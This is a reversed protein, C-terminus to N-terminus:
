KTKESKLFVIQNISMVSSYLDRGCSRFIVISFVCVHLGRDVHSFGVLRKPKQSKKRKETRKTMTIKVVSHM